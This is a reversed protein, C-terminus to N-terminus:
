GIDVERVQTVSGPASELARLSMTQISDVALVRPKLKRAHELAVEADTEAALHLGSSLNGASAACGSRSLSEEGSVYLVPRSEREVSRARRAPAHEQRAPDGALLVVM